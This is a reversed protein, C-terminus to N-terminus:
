LAGSFARQQLSAFLSDLSRAAAHSTRGSREVADSRRVFAQQLHVPPVPLRLSRIQGLSLNAITATVTSSGMQRQAADSGLWSALYPPLLQESPRIVAVAQNCNMEPADQAAIGVRGITGAISLLVDGAFIRSRALVSHVDASVFETAKSGDVSGALLDQARLFPVGSRSTSLGMSSPTTGKTVLATADGLEVVGRLDGFMDLFISQTLSDLHALAARRKARLEDAKDLIAAIRRQEEIPPLEIVKALLSEKSVTAQNVWQRCMGQFVGRAFQLNLWRALFQPDLQSAMTRLRLFHNSFVVREDSGQFCASKGVLEPSNTMNFLVDGDRLEYSALGKSTEPVRRRKSFDLQGHATVNNMRIQFVGDEPNEGCAFGSRAEELVEGLAAKKM